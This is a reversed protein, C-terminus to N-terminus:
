STAETGIESVDFGGSCRCILPWERRLRRPRSVDPIFRGIPVYFAGGVVFSANRILGAVIARRVKVGDRASRSGSRTAHGEQMPAM